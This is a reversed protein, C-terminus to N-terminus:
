AAVPRALMVPGGMKFEMPRVFVVMGGEQRNLEHQQPMWGQPTWVGQRFPVPPAVPDTRYEMPRPNFESNSFPNYRPAAADAQPAFPSAFTQPTSSARSSPGKAFKLYDPREPAGGFGNGNSGPPAAYSAAWPARFSPAFAANVSGAALAVLLALIAPITAIM